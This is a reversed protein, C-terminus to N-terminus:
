AMEEELNVRPLLRPLNFDLFNKAAPNDFTGLGDQVYRYGLPLRALDLLRKKAQEKAKKYTM